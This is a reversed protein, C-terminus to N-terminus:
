INQLITEVLAVANAAAYNQWVKGQKSSGQQYDSVGRVLLWSDVRSGEIAAIVADFGADFARLHYHLRFKERLRENVLRVDRSGDTASESNLSTDAASEKAKEESDNSEDGVNGPSLMPGNSGVGNTNDVSPGNQNGKGFSFRNTPKLPPTPPKQKKNSDEDEDPRKYFTVMSGVPGLHYLPNTRSENPHPFVLINGNNTLQLIVDSTAPPRSFDLQQDRHKDNLRGILSQANAHWADLFRLKNANRVAAALANVKPSLNHVEFRIEKAKPDSEINHAYVYAGIRGDTANEDMEEQSIVVDGLRIHMEPDTLHAQGGAVGVIIVHEVHQYKGLLRTTISGASTAAERDTGIMSLKTAVIRHGAIEGETFINSDGTNSYKHETSSNEVITDVCLKEPFLCTILAIKPPNKAVFNPQPVNSAKRIWEGSQDPVREVIGDSELQDLFTQLEDLTCRLSYALVEEQVSNPYAHELAEQVHGSSLNEMEGDNALQKASPMPMQEKGVAFKLEVDIARLQSFDNQMLRLLSKFFNAYDKPFTDELLNRVFRNSLAARNTAPVDSYFCFRFSRIEQRLTQGGDSSIWVSFSCPFETPYAEYDNTLKNIVIGKYPGSAIFQADDKPENTREIRILNYEPSQVLPSLVLLHCMM